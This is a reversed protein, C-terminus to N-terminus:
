QQLTYFNDGILTVHKDLFTYIDINGDYDEIITAMHPELRPVVDPNYRMLDEMLIVSVMGADACFTGVRESEKAYGSLGKWNHEEFLEELDERLNEGRERQLVACSWDGYITSCCLSTNFGLHILDEEVYVEKDWDEEKVFYCPDTIIITGKFKMCIYPYVIM